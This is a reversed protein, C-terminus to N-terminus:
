KRKRPRHPKLTATIGHKLVAQVVRPVRPILSRLETAVEAAKAASPNNCQGRPIEFDRYPNCGRQTM